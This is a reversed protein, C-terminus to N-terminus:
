WGSEKALYLSVFFIVLGILLPILAFALSGLAPVDIGSVALGFRIVGLLMFACGVVLGIKRRGELPVKPAPQHAALQDLLRRERDYKFRAIESRPAGCTLCSVPQQDPGQPRGCALHCPCGCDPCYIGTGPRDVPGRCITCQQGLAEKM